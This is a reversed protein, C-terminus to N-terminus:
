ILKSLLRGWISKSLLLKTFTYSRKRQFCTKGYRRTCVRMVTARNNKTIYSCLLLLMQEGGGCNQYLLVFVFFGSCKMQKTENTRKLYPDTLIVSKSVWGDMLGYDDTHTTHHSSRERHSRTKNRAFSRAFSHILSHFHICSNVKKLSMGYFSQYPSQRVLSRVFAFQVSNGIWIHRQKSVQM